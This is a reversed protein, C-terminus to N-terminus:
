KADAATANTTPSMEEKQIHSMNKFKKEEGRVM